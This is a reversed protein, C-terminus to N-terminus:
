NCLKIALEFISIHVIDIINLTSVDFYWSYQEKTIIDILCPVLFFVVTKLSWIKFGVIGLQLFVKILDIETDKGNSDIEFVFDVMIKIASVGIEADLDIMKELATVEIM